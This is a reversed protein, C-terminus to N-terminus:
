RPSVEGPGPPYSVLRGASCYGAGGDPGPRPPWWRRRPRADWGVNGRGPKSGPLAAASGGGTRLAGQLTHVLVLAAEAADEKTRSERFDLHATAEISVGGIEVKVTVTEVEM